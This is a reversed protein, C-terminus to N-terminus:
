RKFKALTNDILPIIELFGIALSQIQNQLHDPQLRVWGEMLTLPGFKVSVNPWENEFQKFNARFLDAFKRSQILYGDLQRLKFAHINYSIKQEAIINDNMWISFFIRSKSHLPDENPNAWARKYMKLYVSDMMEGVAVEIQLTKLVEKDLQVAAKQFTNLYIESDIM